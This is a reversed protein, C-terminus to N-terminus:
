NDGQFNDLFDRKEKDLTKNQEPTRAPASKTPKKGGGFDLSRFDEDTKFRPDGYIREQASPEYAAIKEAQADAILDRFYKLARRFSRASTPRALEQQKRKLEERNVAKGSYMLLVNGLLSKSLDALDQGDNTRQEETWGAKKAAEMWSSPLMGVGLGVGPLNDGYRSSIAAMDRLANLTGTRTFNGKTYDRVDKGAQKEGWTVGGGSGQDGFGRQKSYGGNLLFDQMIPDGILQQRFKLENQALNDEGKEILKHLDQIAKAEPKDVKKFMDMLKGRGGWTDFLAAIPVAAQRPDFGQAQAMLKALAGKASRIHERQARIGPTGEKEYERLEAFREPTMIRRQTDKVGGKFGIEGKVRRSEDAEREKPWDLEKKVDHLMSNGVESKAAPTLNQLVKQLPSSPGTRLGAQDLSKLIEEQGPTSGKEPLTPAPSAEQAAAVDSPEVFSSSNVPPQKRQPGMTPPMPPTTQPGNPNPVANPPTALFGPPGEVPTANPIPQIQDKPLRGEIRLPDTFKMRQVPPIRDVYPPRQMEPPLVLPAHWGSPSKDVVRANWSEPEGTPPLEPAFKMGTYEFPRVEDYRGQGPPIRSGM